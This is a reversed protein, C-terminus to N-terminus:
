HPDDAPLCGRRDVRRLTNKRRQPTAAITQRKATAEGATAATATPTCDDLFGTPM